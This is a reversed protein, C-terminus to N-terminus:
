ALEYDSLVGGEALGYAALGAPRHMHLGLYSVLREM